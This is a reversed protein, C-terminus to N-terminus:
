QDSKRQIFFKVKGYKKEFLPDPSVVSFTASFARGVSVNDPVKYYGLIIGSQEEGPGGFRSVWSSFEKNLLLTNKDAISLRVVANSRVHEGYAPPKEIYVGVLYTGVYLHTLQGSQFDGNREISVSQEILPDYLNSPPVLTLLFLSHPRLWYLATMIILFIIFIILM